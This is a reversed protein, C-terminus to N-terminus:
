VGFDFNEIRPRFDMSLVCGCASVVLYTNPHTRPFLWVGGYGFVGVCESVACSPPQSVPECGELEVNKIASQRGDGDMHGPIKGCVGDTKGGFGGGVEASSGCDNCVGIAGGKSEKGM